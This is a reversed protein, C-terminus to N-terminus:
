PGNVDLRIPTGIVTFFFFRAFLIEPRGDGWLLEQIEKPRCADRTSPKRMKVAVTPFDRQVQPVM